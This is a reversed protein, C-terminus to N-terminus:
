RSTRLTREGAEVGILYILRQCMISFWTCEFQWQTLVPTTFSPARVNLLALHYLYINKKNSVYVACNFM